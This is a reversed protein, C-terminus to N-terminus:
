LNKLQNKKNALEKQNYEYEEKSVKHPVFGSGGENVVNNYNRMWADAEKKSPLASPDDVQAISEELSEIEKKIERGKKANKAADRRSILEQAEDQSIKAFWSNGYGYGAHYSKDDKARKVIKAFIEDSRHLGELTDNQNYVRYGEDYNTYHGGAIGISDDGGMSCDIALVLTPTYDFQQTTKLTM